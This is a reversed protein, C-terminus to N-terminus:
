GPTDEGRATRPRTTWRTTWRTTAGTTPETAPETTATTPPDLDDLRDLLRAVYATGRKPAQGPRLRDFVQPGLLERVGPDGLAYGAAHLRGAALRRLRPALLREFREPDGECEHLLRAQLPVLHCGTGSSEDVQGVWDSTVARGVVRVAGAILLVALGLLVVHGADVGVVWALGAAMLAGLVPIVLRGVVGPESM